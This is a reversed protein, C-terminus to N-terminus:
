PYGAGTDPAENWGSWSETNCADNDRAEALAATAASSAAALAAPVAAAVGLGQAAVATIAGSTAGYATAETAVDAVCQGFTSTNSESSDSDSGCGCGCGCGCGGCGCGGCGCGACGGGCGCGCGHIELDLNTGGDMLSWRNVITSAQPLFASHSVQQLMHNRRNTSTGRRPASQHKRVIVSAKMPRRDRQIAPHPSKPLDRKAPSWGLRARAAQLQGEAAVKTPSRSGLRGSPVCAPTEVPRCAVGPPSIGPAPHVFEALPHLTVAEIGHM